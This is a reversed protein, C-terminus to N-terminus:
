VVILYHIPILSTHVLPSILLVSSDDIDVLAILDQTPDIAFDRAPVGLDQREVKSPTHHHRTPLLAAVFHRSGTGWAGPGVGFNVSKAFVGGVLEYAHCGGRLPVRVSSTWDLTKWRERRDILLSLKSSTTLTSHPNDIHNTLALHIIYQLELSSLILQKFFHNLQTVSPFPPATLALFFPVLSPLFPTRAHM